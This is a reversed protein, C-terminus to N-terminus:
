KVSEFAAKQDKYWKIWSDVKIKCERYEFYNATVVSLVESLKEEDEKVLTLDPCVAMLNEVPEPFHREVPVATKCGTLTLLLALALIKKM